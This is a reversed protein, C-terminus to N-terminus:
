SRPPSGSSRSLQNVKRTQSVTIPSTFNTRPGGMTNISPVKFSLGLNFGPYGAQFLADNFGGNRIPGMDLTQYSSINPRPIASSGLRNIPQRTTGRRYLYRMGDMRPARLVVSSQAGPAAAYTLPVRLQSSLPSNPVPGSVFEEPVEEQQTAEGSANYYQQPSKPGLRGLGM